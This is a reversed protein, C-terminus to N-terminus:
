HDRVRPCVGLHCCCLSLGSEIIGSGPACGWTTCCFLTAGSEIIGSGPPCGWAAGRFLAFGSEGTSVVGRCPVVSGPSCGWAAGRLISLGTVCTPVVGCNVHICYIGWLSWRRRSQVGTARSLHALGTM